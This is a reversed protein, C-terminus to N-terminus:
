QGTRHGRAVSSVATASEQDQEAVHLHPHELLEDAAGRRATPEFPLRVVIAHVEVAVAAAATAATAASTTTAAAAPATTALLVPRRLASCPFRHITQSAGIRVATALNTSAAVVAGETGRHSAVVLITAHRRRGSCVM